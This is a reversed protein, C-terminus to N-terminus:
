RCGEVDDNDDGKEKDDDDDDPHDADEVAEDGFHLIDAARAGVLM